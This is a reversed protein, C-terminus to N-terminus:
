VASMINANLKNIAVSWVIMPRKINLYFRVKILPLNTHKKNTKNQTSESTKESTLKVCKILPLDRCHM